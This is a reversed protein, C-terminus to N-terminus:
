ICSNLWKEPFLVSRPGSEAKGQLRVSIGVCVSHVDQHKGPVAVSRRQLFHSSPPHTNHCHAGHVGSGERFRGHAVAGEGWIELSIGLQSKCHQPHWLCSGSARRSGHITGRDGGTAEMGPCIRTAARYSLAHKPRLSLEWYKWCSSLQWLLMTRGPCVSAWGHSKGKLPSSAMGPAENGNNSLAYFSSLRTYHSLILRLILVHEFVIFQGVLILLMHNPARDSCRRFSWYQPWSILLSFSCKLSLFNM